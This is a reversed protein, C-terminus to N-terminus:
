PWLEERKWEGKEEGGEGKEVAFWYRWRRAKAPDSIDCQEVEDPKIVVVRFNARAIPDDLDTVKQGLEHDKDPPGEGHTPTGPPPNRWSGAVLDDACFCLGTEGDRVVDGL